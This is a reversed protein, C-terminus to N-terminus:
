KEKMDTPTSEKTTNNVVINPPMDITQSRRRPKRSLTRLVGTALPEISMDFTKEATIRESICAVMTRPKAKRSPNFGLGLKVGIFRKPTKAARNRILRPNDEIKMRIAMRDVLHSVWIATIFRSFRGRRNALLAKNGDEKIGSQNCATAFTLGTVYAVSAVLCSM